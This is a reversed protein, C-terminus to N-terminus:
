INLEMCFIIRSSEYWIDALLRLPLTWLWTGLVLSGVRAAKGVGVFGDRLRGSLSIRGSVELLYGLSLFQVIPITALLSLGFFLSVAGFTWEWGATIRRGLRQLGTQEAAIDVAEEIAEATVVRVPLPLFEAMVTADLEARPPTPSSPM